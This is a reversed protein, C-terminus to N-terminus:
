GGKKEINSAKHKVLIYYKSVIIIHKNVIFTDFDTSYTQNFQHRDANPGIEKCESVLSWHFWNQKDERM